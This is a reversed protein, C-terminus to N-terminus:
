QGACDSGHCEIFKPNLTDGNPGMGTKLQTYYSVNKGMTDTCTIGFWQGENDVNVKYGTIGVYWPSLGDGTNLATPHIDTWGTVDVPKSFDPQIRGGPGVNRNEYSSGFGCSTFETRTGSGRVPSTWQLATQGPIVGSFGNPSLRISPNEDIQPQLVVHATDMKKEGTATTCVISYEISDGPNAPIEVNDAANPSQVFWFNSTRPYNLNGNATSHGTWGSANTAVGNVRLGTSSGGSMGSTDTSCSAYETGSTFTSTDISNWNLNITPNPNSPTVLINAPDGITTSLDLRLNDAPPVEDFVVTAEAFHHTVADKEVCDIHYITPNEPVVVNAEYKSWDPGILSSKPGSWPSPTMPVSAGTSPDKRYTSAVCSFLDRHIPSFWHLQTVDGASAVNSPIATLVLVQGVPIIFVNASRSVSNGALDKCKITYTNTITSSIANGPPHVVVSNTNNTSLFAGTWDNLNGTPSNTVGVPGCSNPRMGASTYSVLSTGGAASGYFIGPTASITLYPVGGGPTGSPLIKVTGIRNLSTGSSTTCSVVYTKVLPTTGTNSVTFNPWYHKPNATTNDTSTLTAPAGPWNVTGTCTGPSVGHISWSLIVNTAPSGPVTVTPTGVSTVDVGNIYFSLTAETTSVPLVPVSITRTIAPAGNNPTCTLIFTQTIQTTGLNFVQLPMNFHTGNTVQTAALPGNWGTNAGSATCSQMSSVTWYLVVSGGNPQAPLTADAQIGNGYFLLSPGTSAGVVTVGSMDLWGVVDDGWAFGTMTSVGSTNAVGITIGHNTGTFNVWGDWGGSTSNTGGSCSTPTSSGSCFRAWGVLQNGTIKAPIAQAAPDNTPFGTMTPDFELWGINDSGAVVDRPNAWAYGSLVGTTADITVNYNSAGCSGTTNCDFDVWGVTSSWASGSLHPTPGSQAKVVGFVVLFFATAIFLIPLILHKQKVITNM